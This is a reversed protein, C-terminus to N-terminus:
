GNNEADLGAGNQEAKITYQFRLFFYGGNTKSFHDRNQLLAISLATPRGVGDRQSDSATATM